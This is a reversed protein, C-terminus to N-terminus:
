HTARKRVSVDVKLRLHIATVLNRLLTLELISVADLDTIHVKESSINLSNFLPLRNAYLQCTTSKNIQDLLEKVLM